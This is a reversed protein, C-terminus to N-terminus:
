MALGYLWTLWLGAAVGLVAAHPWDPKPLGGKPALVRYATGLAASILLSVGLLEAGLLGGTALLLTAAESYPRLAAIARCAGIAAVGVTLGGMHWWYAGTLGNAALGLGIFAIVVSVGQTVSPRVAHLLVIAQLGWVLGVSVVALPLSSVWAGWLACFLAAVEPWLLAPSLPKGCCRAKGRNWLWSAVPALDIAGLPKGCNDCYSRGGPLGTAGGRARDAWCQLFSATMPAMVVLIATAVLLIDNMLPM